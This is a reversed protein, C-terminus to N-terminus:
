KIICQLDMSAVAFKVKCLTKLQGLIHRFKKAVRTCYYIYQIHVITAWGYLWLLFKGILWTCNAYVPHSYLVPVYFLPVNTLLQFTGWASFGTSYESTRWLCMSHIFLTLWLLSWLLILISFPWHCILSLYNLVDAKFQEGQYAM